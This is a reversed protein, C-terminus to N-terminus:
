RAASRFVVAGALQLPPMAYAIDDFYWDARQFLGIGFCCLCPITKTRCHFSLGSNSSFYCRWYVQDPIGKGELRQIHVLLRFVAAWEFRKRSEIDESHWVQPQEHHDSLPKYHRGGGMDTMLITHWPFIRMSSCPHGMMVSKPSELTTSSIDSEILMPVEKKAPEVRHIAGSSINARTSSSPCDGGGIM